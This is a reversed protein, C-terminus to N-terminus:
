FSFKLSVKIGYNNIKNGSNTLAYNAKYTEDIYTLRYVFDVKIINLINEIGVSAECYPTNTMVTFANSSNFEKNANSLTGYFANGGIVERLNMKKILPIRNFFLGMFHHQWFLQVYQDSVFEFYNMQNFVNDSYFSTQNGRPIELSTYPIKSFVKGAKAVIVSYGFTGMRFRNTISVATKQYNYNGGFLQKIGQTFNLTFIPSKKNGLSIRDNGNQIYREKKSLRADLAIETVTYSTQQFTSFPDGFIATFLPTTHINQFTLRTSLGTTFERDYWIRYEEKRVLKFVNGIQSSTTYIYNAPQSLNMNSSFNTNVGIQDIDKRYQVGIKSWPYRTIVRELQLNYKFKEDKFGYAGYGRVIWAKSFKENTKFGLRVRSGEYSNHGYLQMYHGLDVPGVDKYGSFLFYGINVTKKVSKINRITDVMKYAHAETAALPTPREKTWFSSDKTIADEAFQIRTDYFDKEKPKNVVFYRNINYTHIVASVLKKTINAYDLMVRTQSPVWPGAETPLLQQQIRVRDVLNFNVDKTIELNLQKIAFTSDTIWLTGTYVLDKNNKPQVDIKYCKISDIFLSDMLYYNYFLFADSAIPSLFDKDLVPVNNNCFNYSQFDTGMLQTLASGDKMGVFRVKVAKVEEHKKKADKYSYIESLVESMSVPLHTERDKDAINDLSDWISTIPNFLRWERMRQSINDVDVEQKTYSLYQVSELNDRNHKEKNNIVNRIIRLAPNVGPLIKVVGLNLSTKKLEFNIIQTEGKKVVKTESQYGLLSVFVSDNSALTKISYNGEFDTVTGIVSGKFYINAFAIGSSSAAETVRGSIITEKQANVSLCLLLFFIIFNYAGLRVEAWRWILPTRYIEQIIKDM